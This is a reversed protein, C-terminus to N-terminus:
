SGRREEVWVCTAALRVFYHVGHRGRSVRSCGDHLVIANCGHQAAEEALAVQARQPSVTAAIV